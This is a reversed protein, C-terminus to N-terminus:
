VISSVLWPLQKNQKIKTKNDKLTEEVKKLEHAIKNNELKYQKM